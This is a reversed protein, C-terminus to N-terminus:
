HADLLFEMRVGAVELVANDHIPCASSGIPHGDITPPSASDGEVHVIFYGRPRRSIAAVQVGPKGLTTLPKTIALEKGANAGNLVRIRATSQNEQQAETAEHLNADPVEAGAANDAPDLPQSSGATKGSRLLATHEVQDDDPALSSEYHLQHKGLMIVDGDQLARRKIAMGNVYTGNTSGLDEIFADNAIAVIRAHHGSVALNDIQIDNDSRRGISIHGQELKREQLVKGNFTLKLNAM